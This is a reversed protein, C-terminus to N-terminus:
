FKRDEDDAVAGGVIWHAGKCAPRVQGSFAIEEVLLGQSSLDAGFLFAQTM